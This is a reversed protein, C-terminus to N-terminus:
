SEKLAPLPISANESLCLIIVGGGGEGRRDCVAHRLELKAAKIQDAYDVADKVKTQILFITLMFISM